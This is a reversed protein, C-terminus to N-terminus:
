GFNITCFSLALILFFGHDMEFPVMFLRKSTLLSIVGLVFEEATHEPM